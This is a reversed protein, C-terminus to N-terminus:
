QTLCVKIKFELGTVIKSLEHSGCIGDLLRGVSEVRASKVFIGAVSRASNFCTNPQNMHKVWSRSSKRWSQEGFEHNYYKERGRPHVNINPIYGAEDFDADCGGLQPM